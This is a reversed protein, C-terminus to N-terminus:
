RRWGGRSMRWGNGSRAWTPQVWHYGARPASWRGPVWSYAGSVWNWYGGLWIYGPYPAVGIAEAQATPPGYSVTGGYYGANYGAPYVVCASLIMPMALAATLPLARGLGTMFRNRM